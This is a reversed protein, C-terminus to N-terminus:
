RKFRVGMGQLTKKVFGLFRARIKLYRKRNSEYIDQVLWIIKWLCLPLHGEYFDKVHPHGIHVIVPYKIGVHPTEVRWNYPLIYPYQKTHWIARALAIPGSCPRREMEALWALLLERSRQNYFIVGCDLDTMSKPASSLEQRDADYIDKGIKLELDLFLRSNMPIAMGFYKAIEFGDLIRPSVALHDNDLYLTAEFPSDRLIILRFYDSNRWAYRFDYNKPQILEVTTDATNADFLHDSFIKIPYDCYRRLSAISKFCDKVVAEGITIYYIGYKKDM